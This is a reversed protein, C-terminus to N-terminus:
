SENQNFIFGVGNSTVPMFSTNATVPMTSTVSMFISNATVPMFSQSIDLENQDSNNSSISPDVTISPQIVGKQDDSVEFTIDLSPVSLMSEDIIKTYELVINYTTGVYADPCSIVVRSNLYDVYSYTRYTLENPFNIPIVSYSKALTGNIFKVEIESTNMSIFQLNSEVLGTIVRRYLPKGDIWTGIRTEETSYVNEAPVSEVAKICYLVAMNVPRSTFMSTPNPSNSYNDSPFSIFDYKGNSYLTTKDINRALRNSRAGISAIGSIGGYINNVETAEQKEGVETSLQEEADGHYGRLFLNRMDPVAFTTEGDGGHYNKVGFQKQFHKALDPYESINYEAGDCILYDKPATFGLYSIVTGIPNGDPGAPGRINVTAPNSLGGNNTWSVEGSESVSPIFTAGNAGIKITKGNIHLETM